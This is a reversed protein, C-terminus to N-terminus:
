RGRSPASRARRPTPPRRRPAHRPLEARSTSRSSCRKRSRPLERRAHAVSAPPDAPDENGTLFLVPVSKNELRIRRIVEWGDLGPLMVDLVVLDYPETRSLRLGEWGDKAVHVTFGAQTLGLKLYAGTKPEDEVILIKM